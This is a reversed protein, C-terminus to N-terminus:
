WRKVELCMSMRREPTPGEVVVMYHGRKLLFPDSRVPGM